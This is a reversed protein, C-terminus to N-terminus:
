RVFRGIADVLREDVPLSPDSYSALQQAPDAPVVKLVHNMGHRVILEADPKAALLAEAESTAVQIDTTGQTILVPVNLRRLEESPVYRFWSILYPQASPRYLTTLESPVDSVQQGSELAALIRESQAWLDASLVSLLQDRLVESARRAVGAISM